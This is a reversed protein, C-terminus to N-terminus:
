LNSKSKEGQQSAFNREVDVIMAVHHSLAVVDGESDFVIVESDLRGNRIVKAATHLRLWEAGDPPLKKKVDLSMTVTPYWFAKHRPFYPAPTENEKGPRYSEILLPAAADALFGLDTECFRANPQSLRVWFDLHQHPDLAHADAPYYFELSRLPTVFDMVRAWFPRWKDGALKRPLNALDAPPPAPSPSWNTPLSLGSELAIDRCTIYAVVCAESSGSVWPAQQQLKGQFLSVHLVSMAKSRRVEDIRLVARGARTKALFQWHVAIADPQGLLAAHQRAARLFISAVYGGNPVIGVCFAESLEAAYTFEDLRSVRTKEELSAAKEEGSFM